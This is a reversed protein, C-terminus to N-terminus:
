AAKKRYGDMLEKLRMQREEQLRQENHRWLEALEDQPIDSLAEDVDRATLIM